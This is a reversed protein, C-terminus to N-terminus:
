GFLPMKGHKETKTMLPTALITLAAVGAMIAFVTPLNAYSGFTLLGVVLPGLAQGGTSGLGWVLANGASSSGRPVYDSVLSLLLPFGSFTFFGFLILSVTAGAGSLNIYALISVASLLSNASLVVRKDFRDVLQGFIPQGLIGGAYMITVTYGLHSSLGMHKQTTLYIPIWSVIGIFAMSRFFAIVTLAIVSKNLLSKFPLAGASYPPETKGSPRAPSKPQSHPQMPAPVLVSTLDIDSDVSPPIVETKEERNARSPLRALGYGILLASVMGIIAFIAITSIQSIALAAVLFFLSPYLARGLSGFAGNIGLATGRSKNDYALQVLSGGIPHYFSSGIGAILAGAIAFFDSGVGPAVILSLYFGVMGISLVFIGFAILIGRRGLSDAIRGAVMGFGASAVYFVTLVATVLLESAGHHKALIAAIVPIFFVMGDNIFHGFSIFTLM